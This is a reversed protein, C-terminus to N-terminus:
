IAICIPSFLGIATMAESGLVKGTIIGDVLVNLSGVVIGLIQLPLLKMYSKKVMESIM